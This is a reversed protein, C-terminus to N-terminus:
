YYTFILILQVIVSTLAVGFILQGEKRSANNYYYYRKGDFAKAKGLWLALGGIIGFLGGTFAFIWIFIRLGTGAQKGEIIADLKHNLNDYVEKEQIDINRTKAIKQAKDVFSEHWEDPNLIIDKIEEDSYSEIDIKQDSPIDLLSIIELAEIEDKEDVTIEYSNSNSAGYASEINSKASILKCDIDNRKLLAYVTDAMDKEYTSYVKVKDNM